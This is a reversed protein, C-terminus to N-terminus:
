NLKEIVDYESVAQKLIDQEIWLDGTKDIFTIGNAHKSPNYGGYANRVLLECKGTSPNKRRGIILASHNVRFFLINSNKKKYQNGLNYIDADLSIGIPQAMKGKNFESEVLKPEPKLPTLLGTYFNVMDKLMNTNSLQYNSNVSESFVVPTYETHIKFKTKIRNADNCVPFLKKFLDMYNKSKMVKIIQDFEKSKNPSLNVPCSSNEIFKNLKITKEANYAAIIFKNALEARLNDPANEISKPISPLDPILTDELEKIYKSLTIISEDLNINNKEFYNNIYNLNCGGTNNLFRLLPAISDGDLYSDNETFNRMRDASSAKKYYLSKHEFALYQPSTRNQYNREGHTFRFADYMQAVAYDTCLGLYGQDM